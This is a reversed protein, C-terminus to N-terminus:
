IREKYYEEFGEFALDEPNPLIIGLEAAAFAQVKELYQTFQVTDLTTTSVPRTVKGYIGKVNEWPLFGAKLEEHVQDRDGGTEECICGIWMWYLSNQDVSRRRKHRSVSVDFEKDKPLKTIYGIVAAQTRENHIHFKM